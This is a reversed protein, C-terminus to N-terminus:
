PDSTWAMGIAKACDIGVVDAREGELPPATPRLVRECAGDLVVRVARRAGRLPQQCRCCFPRGDKPPDRRYDPDLEVTERRQAPSLLIESM